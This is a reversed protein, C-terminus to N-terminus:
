SIGILALARAALSLDGEHCRLVEELDALGNQLM